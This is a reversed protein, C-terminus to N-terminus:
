PGPVLYFRAAGHEAVLPLVAIWDPSGLDQEERAYM